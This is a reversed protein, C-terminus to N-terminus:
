CKLFLIPMLFQLIRPGALFITIPKKSLVMPLFGGYDTGESKFHLNEKPDNM